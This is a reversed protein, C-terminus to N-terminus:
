PQYVNFSQETLKRDGLWIEFTWTGPVADVEGFKYGRYMIPGVAVESVYEDRFKTENRAPNRVGQVPYKVVTKVSVKDTRPGTLKYQFGFATGAQAPVDATSRVLRLNRVVNRTGSALNQNDIQKFVESRFIGKEVIEIRAAQQANAITLGLFAVVVSAAVRLM